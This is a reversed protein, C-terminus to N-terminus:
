RSGRDLMFETQFRAVFEEVADDLITATEKLLGAIYNSGLMAPIVVFIALVTTLLAGSVGPALTQVDARGAQALRSFAVTIGGVTGFLGLFPCVGIASALIMTRKELFLLQDEVTREMTTRLLGVEKETLPRCTKDPLVADFTKFRGVAALFVEGAPSTTKKATKRLEFLNGAALLDRLFTESNRRASRLSIIKEVVLSCIGVSILLLVVCVSKGLWDSMTFAYYMEGFGNSWSFTQGM